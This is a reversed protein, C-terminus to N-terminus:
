FHIPSVVILTYFQTWACAWEDSPCVEEGLGGCAHTNSRVCVCRESGKKAEMAVGVPVKGWYFREGVPVVGTPMREFLRLMTEIIYLVKRVARKECAKSVIWETAACHGLLISYTLSKIMYKIMVSTLLLSDKNFKSVFYDTIFLVIRKM